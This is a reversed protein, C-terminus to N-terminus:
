HEVGKSRRSGGPAGAAMALNTKIWIQIRMWGIMRKGKERKNRRKRRTRDRRIVTKRIMMKRQKRSM